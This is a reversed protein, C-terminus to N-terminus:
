KLAKRATAGLADGWESRVKKQIYYAYEVRHILIIILAYCSASIKVFVVCLKLNLKELLM